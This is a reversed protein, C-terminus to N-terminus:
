IKLEPLDVDRLGSVVLTAAGLKVKRYANSMRIGQTTKGERDALDKFTTLGVKDAALEIISVLDRKSFEDNQIALLIENSSKM